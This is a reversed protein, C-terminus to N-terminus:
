TRRFTALIDRMKRVGERSAQKGGYRVDLYLSRFEGAQEPSDFRSETLRGYDASTRYPLREIGVKRCYGLFKRYIERVPDGAAFARRPPRAGAPVAFRQERLGPPSVVQESYASLKRFLLILLYIGLAVAAVILIAKIANFSASPLRELSDEIIEAAMQGELEVPDRSSRPLKGILYFLPSLVFIVAILVVTLLPAFINFYVMRLLAGCLGLFVMNGFLASLLVVGLVQVISMVRFRSQEITEKGHRLMRMLVVASIFFVLAYPLSVAELRVLMGMVLQIFLFPFYLKAFLFFTESYSFADPLTRLRYASVGLYAMVPLVLIVNPLSVPLLLFCAPLLALPALRLRGKDRLAACAYACVAFLPLAQAASQGGLMASVTNAFAFYFCLDCLMKLTFVLSM